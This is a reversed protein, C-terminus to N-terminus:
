AICAVTCVVRESGARMHAAASQLEKILCTGCGWRQAHTGTAGTWLARMRRIDKRGDAGGEGDLCMALMVLM